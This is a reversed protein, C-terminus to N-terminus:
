QAEMRADYDAELVEIRDILNEIFRESAKVRTALDGAEQRMVELKSTRKGARMEQVKDKFLIFLEPKPEQVLVWESPTGRHGKTIQQAVDMMKFLRTVYSQEPVHAGISPFLQTTKGRWIRNGHEDEESEEMMKKYAASM